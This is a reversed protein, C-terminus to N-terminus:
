PASDSLRRLGDTLPIAAGIRFLASRRVAIDGDSLEVEADSATLADSLRTGPSNSTQMTLTLYYALPTSEDSDLEFRTGSPAVTALSQCCGVFIVTM